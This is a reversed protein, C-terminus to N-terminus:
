RYALAKIKGAISAAAIPGVSRSMNEEIKAAINGLDEKSPEDINLMIYTVRVKAEALHDGVIPALVNIIEQTLDAVAIM